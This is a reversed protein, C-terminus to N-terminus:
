KTTLMIVALDSGVNYDKMFKSILKKYNEPSNNVEYKNFNIRSACWYGCTQIHKDNSQYKVENFSVKFGDDKAKNLLYSLFPINQNFEKRLHKKAFLLNKDVRLGYPDFFMIRKNSRMLATFHGSDKEVTSVFLVIASRANPLLEEITDYKELEEYRVIPVDPPLLKRLELDSLPQFLKDYIKDM